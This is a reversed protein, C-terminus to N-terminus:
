KGTKIVLKQHLGKEGGADIQARPAYPSGKGAFESGPSANRTLLPSRALAPSSTPANTALLDDPPPLGPVSLSGNYIATGLLMVFLGMLQLYSGKHLCEGHTGDSLYYILLQAAWISIPRFNDLIAHWVSSLLFTVLVSFSNLVFVSACFLVSLQILDPNDNLQALTNDLNELTGAVDRAM